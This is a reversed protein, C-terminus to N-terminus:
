LGGLQKIARRVALPLVRAAAVRLLYVVRFSLVDLNGVDLAKRGLIISYLEYEDLLRNRWGKPKRRSIRNSHLCSSITSCPESM